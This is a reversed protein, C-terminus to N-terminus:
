NSDEDLAIHKLIGLTLGYEKHDNVFSKYNEAEVAFSNYSNSTDFFSLIEKTNVQSVGGKLYDSYSSWKYLEPNDTLSAVFPNLHIYRSLHLLQEDTEVAVAKFMGQFVPGQFDYKVNRYKTYSHIFRRIFESIGGNRTQRVLLYFHNPMLCYCLIDVMKKNQDIPFVKSIRYTSFKPKPNEIQYYFLTDLFHSYDKKTDFTPLKRIGRNFIHYFGGNIFRTTRYPM